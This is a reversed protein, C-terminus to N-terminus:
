GLVHASDHFPGYFPFPFEFPFIILIQDIEFAHGNSQL